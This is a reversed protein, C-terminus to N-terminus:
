DSRAPRLCLYLAQEVLEWDAKEAIFEVRSETRPEIASLSFENNVANFALWGDTAEFVGKIRWIGPLNRLTNVLQYGDFRWQPPFSFSATQVGFGQGLRCNVGSLRWEPVPQPLSERKAETHAAPFFAHRPQRPLDLWVPDIAGQSVHFLQRGSVGSLEDAVLLPAAFQDFRTQQEASALDCKNAVLVDALQLQDQFTDNALVEPQDVVRCDVLCLTARLDLQQKFAASTLTAVVQLPHGLGTPEILLRQPKAQKLLFTLGIQMPLGAVCCMCGGPVDKIFVGDTATFLEQDIGLEGFENVLIAWREGAPKHQLLHNIATTKGVGLFGTIINTPVGTLSM